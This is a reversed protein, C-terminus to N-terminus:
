FGSPTGRRFAPARQVKEYAESEVVIIKEVGEVKAAEQAVARASKGAVFGHIPGGLEKAATIASLSGHNLVGDKQELVALSAILRKHATSRANSIASTLNQALRRAAVRRLVRSYM